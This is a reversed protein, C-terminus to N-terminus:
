NMHEHASFLWEFLLGLYFSSVFFSLSKFMSVFQSFGHPIWLSQFCFVIIFSSYLSFSVPLLRSTVLTSKQDGVYKKTQEIYKHKEELCRLWYINKEEISSGIALRKQDDYPKQEAGYIVVDPFYLLLRCGDRPEWQSSSSYQKAYLMTQNHGVESKQILFVHNFSINNLPALVRCGTGDGDVCFRKFDYVEDLHQVDPKPTYAEAILRSLMPLTFADCRALKKSFRSFM